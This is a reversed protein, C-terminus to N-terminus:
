MDQVGNASLNEVKGSIRAPGMNRRASGLATVTQSANFADHLTM